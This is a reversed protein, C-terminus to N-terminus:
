AFAMGVTDAGRWTSLVPALYSHLGVCRVKNNKTYPIFGLVECMFEVESFLHFVSPLWAHHHM